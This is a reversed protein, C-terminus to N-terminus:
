QRSRRVDAVAFEWWADLFEDVKPNALPPKTRIHPRVVCGLEVCSELIAIANPVDSPSALVFDRALASVQKWDGVRVAAIIRESNTSLAPTGVLSLVASLAISALRM